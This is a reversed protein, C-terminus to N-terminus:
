AFKKRLHDVMAQHSELLASSTANNIVSAPIWGKLDMNNVMEYLFTHPTGAVPSIRVGGGSYSQGLVYSKDPPPVNALWKKDKKADLGVSAIILGGPPADAHEGEGCRMRLDMFERSSIAGGAAANTVMRALAYKGGKFDAVVEGEKLATDWGQAGVRKSFDFLEGTIEELSGGKLLCSVKWRMTSKGPLEACLVKIGDQDKQLSWAKGDCSHNANLNGVFQSMCDTLMQVGKAPLVPAGDDASPIASAAASSIAGAAEPAPAAPASSMSAAILMLWLAEAVLFGEYRALACAALSCLLGAHRQPGRVPGHLWLDASFAVFFVGFAAHEGVGLESGVGSSSSM